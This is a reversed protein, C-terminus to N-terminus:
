PVPVWVALVDENGLVRTHHGRGQIDTHLLVDGTGFKRREGDGVEIEAVGSLVMVFRKSPAPHWDQSYAKPVRLFGIKQSDLLPTVLVPPNGTKENKQWPLYEDRFHTIGQSDMYVVSYRLQQQGQAVCVLCSAALLLSIPLRSQSM